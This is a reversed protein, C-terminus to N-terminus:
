KRDYLGEEMERNWVYGATLIVITWLALFAIVLNADSLYGYLAVIVLAANGSTLLM